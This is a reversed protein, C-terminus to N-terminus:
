VKSAPSFASWISDDKAKGTEDGCTKKKKGQHPGYPAVHPRKRTKGSKCWLSMAPTPDFSQITQGSLTIRMLDTTTQSTLRSRWDQKIRNRLSFTREVEATQVPLVLMIKVLAGVNPISSDTGCSSSHLLVKSWLEEFKLSNEKERFHQVLLKLEVWELRCKRPDFGRQMLLPGFHDAM